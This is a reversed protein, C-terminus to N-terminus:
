VFPNNSKEYSITTEEGHGPYVITQGDLTLLKKKISSLIQNFDSNIFDTRGISKKFLTDGSFLIKDTFLSISGASHGPTHLVNLEINGAKIKDGEKLLVDAKKSVVNKGCFTSLNKEPNHLLETDFEHIYLKASTKEILFNNAGIHDMHGHTNIIAELRCGKAEIEGFIVEGEDGPDIVVAKKNELDFLIYCNTDLEGVVIPTIIINKDNMQSAGKMGSELIHSIEINRVTIWD